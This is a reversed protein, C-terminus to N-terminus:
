IASSAHRDVFHRLERVTFVTSLEHAHVIVDIGFEEEVRFALSMLGLSDIGLDNHMNAADDLPLDRFRRPIVERVLADLSIAHHEIM